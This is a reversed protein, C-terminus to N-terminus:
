RGPVVSVGAMIRQLNKGDLRKPGSLFVYLETGHGAETLVLSATEQGKKKGQTLFGKLVFASIENKDSKKQDTNLQLSTLRVDYIVVDALGMLAMDKLVLPIVGVRASYATKLLDYNDRIGTAYQVLLAAKSGSIEARQGAVFKVETQANKDEFQLANEGQGTLTFRGPVTISFDGVPYQQTNTLARKPGQWSITHPVVRIEEHNQYLYFHFGATMIIVLLLIVAISKWDVYRRGRILSPPFRKLLDDMLRQKDKGDLAYSLPTSRLLGQKISVQLLRGTQNIDIRMISQYSIRRGSSRVIQRQEDDFSFEGTRAVVLGVLLVFPFSLVIMASFIYLWQMGMLCFSLLPATALVYLFVNKLFLVGSGKYSTRDVVL